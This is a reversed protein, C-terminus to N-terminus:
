AAKRAPAGAAKASKGSRRSPTSPTEERPPTEACAPKGDRGIRYAAGRTKDSRDIWVAYGRKRLGTLAARTTHPLWDTSAVLEDLTAGIDRDLLEVVHAIKTGGRPSALRPGASVVVASHVGAKETAPAAAETQERAANEAGQRSKAAVGNTIIKAGGVMLKLAFVRGTDEERRWAPLKPKALLEKVLGAAILKAAVKQAAGGKLNSPLVVCRDDRAAAASLLLQQTETLKVSM